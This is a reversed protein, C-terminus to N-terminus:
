IFRKLEQFFYAKDITPLSEILPIIIPTILKLQAPEIESFYFDLIKKKEDNNLDLLSSSSPVKLLIPNLAFNNKLCFRVMEPLEQWNLKQFLANIALKFPKTRKKNYELVKDLNKLTQSLKAPPRLVEYTAPVLSDLSVTLINIEILDLLKELKPSLSWAMNTTFFWQCTSNLSSVEQILKYTDAQIFPEGGLMDIEKLHPFLIHRAPEWFNEETYNGNPSQWVTCFPCRLNCHGNLNATLRLIPGNQIVELEAEPALTNFGYELHCKRHTVEERCIIPNNELFERRWEQAKPSNRIEWIDHLSRDKINGIPFNDGKNRCIGVKGDPELIISTFPMVCFNPSLGTRLEKLSHKSM